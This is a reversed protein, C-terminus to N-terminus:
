HICKLTLQASSKIKMDSTSTQFNICKLILQRIKLISSKSTQALRFIIKQMSQKFPKNPTVGAAVLNDEHLDELDELDEDEALFVVIM